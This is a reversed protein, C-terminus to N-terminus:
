RHVAYSPPRLFRVFPLAAVAELRHFPVWALVLRQEPALRAIRAQRAQLAAVAAEDLATVVIAVELNGQADVRVLPTSYAEPQRAAVNAPTLGDAQMRQVVQQLASAIKPASAGQAGSGPARCAAFLVVAALVGVARGYPWTRPPNLTM